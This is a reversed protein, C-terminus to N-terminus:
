AELMGRLEIAQRSKTYPGSDRKGAGGKDKGRTVRGDGRLAWLLLGLPKRAGKCARWLEWLDGDGMGLARARGALWPINQLPASGSRKAENNITELVCANDAVGRTDDDTFDKKQTEIPNPIGQSAEPQVPAARREEDPIILAYSYSNGVPARRIIGLEDTAARIGDAIAQLCLGTAEAFQSYSIIDSEKGWPITKSCITLVVALTAKSMEHVRPLLFAPLPVFFYPVRM